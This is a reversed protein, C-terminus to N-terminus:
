KIYKSDLPPIEAGYEPAAIRVPKEHIEDTGGPFYWSIVEFLGAVAEKWM